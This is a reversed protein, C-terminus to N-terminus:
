LTRLYDILQRRLNEDAIGVYQMSTGPLFTSPDALFADLAEETWTGDTDALAQSYSFGEAAGMSRGFVGNLRPGIGHEQGAEAPHCATCASFLEAGDADATRRSIFAVTSGNKSWLAIQGSPTEVLDRVGFPLGIPEVLVPKGDVLRIRFLTQGTMSSVVLDDRWLRFNEHTPQILNSIGISPTWVYTPQHFGDHRGQAPNRPWSRAGYNTGYIVLPWGYNAGKEIFNLEDGGRPGHETSWIQGEPTVLLGQPNRHGSSWISAAGSALDISLIKGYDATMDQPMDIEANVSDFEHDGVSFLLTREDIMVLRGGVQHGGFPNPSKMKLCPSTEYVTTWSDSGTTNRLEPLIVKLQSVRVTVCSDEERFYHHSVWITAVNGELTVLLDAVRFHPAFASVTEAFERFAESNIPVRLPLETTTLSLELANERLLYFVGDGTVLLIQEDPLPALGGGMAFSLPIHKRYARLELGYLSTDLSQRKASPKTPLVGLAAPSNMGILMAVMAALLLLRTKEFGRAVIPAVFIAVAAAYSVITASRSVRVESLLLWALVCTNVFCATFVAERWSDRREMSRLGVWSALLLGALAVAVLAPSPDAALWANQRSYLVSWAGPILSLSLVSLFAQLLHIRRDHTNSM